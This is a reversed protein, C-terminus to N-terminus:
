LFGPLCLSQPATLSKDPDTAFKKRGLAEGRETCHSMHFPEPLKSSTCDSGEWWWQSHRDKQKWHTNVAWLLKLFHFSVIAAARHLPPPPSLTFYSCRLKVGLKQFWFSKWAMSWVATALGKSFPHILSPSSFSPNTPPEKMVQHTPDHFLSSFHQNTHSLLAITETYLHISVGQAPSSSLLGPGWQPCPSAWSHLRSPGM